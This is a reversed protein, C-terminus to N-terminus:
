KGVRQWCADVGVMGWVVVRERVMRQGDLLTQYGRGMGFAFPLPAGVLMAQVDLKQRSVYLFHAVTQTPLGVFDEKVHRPYDRRPRCILTAAVM